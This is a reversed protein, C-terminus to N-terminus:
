SDGGYISQSKSLNRAVRVIYARPSSFIRFKRARPSLFIELEERPEPISFIGPQRAGEFVPRRRSSSM